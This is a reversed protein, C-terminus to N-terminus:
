RHHRKCTLGDPCTLGQADANGPGSIGGCAAWKGRAVGREAGAQQLHRGGSADANAGGALLLSATVVLLLSLPAM